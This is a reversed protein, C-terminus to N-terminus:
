PKDYSRVISYYAGAVFDTRLASVGSTNPRSPVFIIVILRERPDVVFLTGTGGNWGFSDVTGIDPGAASTRVAVGFGWGYGSDPFRQGVQNITLMRVSKQSLVQRGKCRGEDLLFQAFRLYDRITSRLGGGGSFFDVRQEEQGQHRFQTLNGSSDKQYQAALRSVKAAPVFFYTDHMGLPLLVTDTLFREYTEGTVVEIIATLVEYAPGYEYRTGPQFRLPLRSLRRSFDRSTRAEGWIADLEPGSAQLGAQDTLLDYVTIPRDADVVANGDAVKAHEFEPLFSAVSDTLRLKGHECLMLVAVATIPKTISALRVIADEKMPVGPASYGAATLFVIKGNRAVLGVASGITKSAVAEDLLLQLRSLRARDMGIASTSSRDQAFTRAPLLLMTV